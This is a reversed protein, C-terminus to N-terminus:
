FKFIFGIGFVEKFQVRPGEMDVNGDGTKDIGIMVDDDYILHTNLSMTIYKTVKINILVEWDIDINQPTDIYNSFLELKSSASIKETFEKKAVVKLFGGFENRIKEGAEVGFAGKASLSDDLVISMKGTVPAAFISISKNPKYDVGLSLMAYAPAMFNSIMVSDNPFNYGPMFQTKFSAMSTLFLTKENLLRGYKSSFDIRDDSKRLNEDGQKIMGYGIDLFNEWSAKKKKYNAFVVFKSNASINNEGGSAWNTLSLQTLNINFSGGIDWPPTSDNVEDLKKKIKDHEKIVEESEQAFLTFSLLFILGLLLIRKTQM